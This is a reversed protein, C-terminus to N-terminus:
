SGEEALNKAHEERVLAAGPLKPDGLDLVWMLHDVVLAKALIGQEIQKSHEADKLPLGTFLSAQMDGIQDMLEIVKAVVMCREIM